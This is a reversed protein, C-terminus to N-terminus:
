RPVAQFETLAVGGAATREFVVRVRGGRAYFVKDIQVSTLLCHSQSTIDAGTESKAEGPQLERGTCWGASDRYPNAMVRSLAPPSGSAILEQETVPRAPMVVLPVDADLM